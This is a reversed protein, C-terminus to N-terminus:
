LLDSLITKELIFTLISCLWGFGTILFLGQMHNISLPIVGDVAAEDMQGSAEIDDEGSDDGLSAAMQLANLFFKRVLGSEQIWSMVQDLKRKLPSHRQLGLAVHYTQFNGKMIRVRSVGRTTFKNQLLYDANVRNVLYVAKGQLLPPLVSDETPYFKSTKALAQLYPDSSLALGDKFVPSLGVVHLGSDYIDKYTEMMAPQKEVLLFSKLNASYVSTLTLTYLWLFLVFIQTSASRPLSDHAECFHVGFAYYWSYSLSQLSRLEGGCQDSARALLFLLPGSLTLGVLVALWTWQHFPFALSQWQPLPPETRTMFIM